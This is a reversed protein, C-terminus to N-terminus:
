NQYFSLFIAFFQQCCLYDIHEDSITEGTIKGNKFDAFVSSFQNMCHEWSLIRTQPSYRMKKVEEFARKLDEKTLTERTM